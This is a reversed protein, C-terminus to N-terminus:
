RAHGVGREIDIEDTLRTIKEYMEKQKENLASVDIEKNSAIQELALRMQMVVQSEIDMQQQENVIKTNFLLDGIRLRDGNVDYIIAFNPNM